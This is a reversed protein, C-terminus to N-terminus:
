TKGDLTVLVTQQGGYGQHLFLRFVTQLEDEAVTDALTRRITNYAPVTQRELQFAAILQRRRLRIWEAIGKPTDEGALKALLILTLLLPLTYRKGRAKRSDTLQQFKVMLEGIHFVFGEGESNELTIHDM